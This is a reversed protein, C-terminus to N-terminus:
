KRKGSTLGALLSVVPWRWAEFVLARQFRKCSKRIPAGKRPIFLTGPATIKNTQSSNRENLALGILGWWDVFGWAVAPRGSPRGHLDERISM